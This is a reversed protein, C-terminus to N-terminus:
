KPLGVIDISINKNPCSNPFESGYFKIRLLRLLHGKPLFRNGLSDKSVAGLMVCGRSHGPKNGGHFMLNSRNKGDSWKVEGIEMYFDGTNGIHGLPGTVHGKSSVYRMFGPYHGANIRLDFREYCNGLYEDNVFINGTILNDSVSIREIRIKFEENSIDEKRNNAYGLLLLLILTFRTLIM